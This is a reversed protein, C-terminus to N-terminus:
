RKFGFFRRGSTATEQRMKQVERLTEDLKKYRREEIQERENFIYRIESIVEKTLEEKLEENNEKLIREQAQIHSKLADLKEQSFEFKKGEEVQVSLLSREKEYSQLIEKKHNLM